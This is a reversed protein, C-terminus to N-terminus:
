MGNSFLEKDDETGFVFTDSSEVIILTLSSPTTM